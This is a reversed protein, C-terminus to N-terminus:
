KRKQTVSGRFNGRPVSYGVKPTTVPYIKVLSLYASHHTCSVWVDMFLFAQRKMRRRREQQSPSALSHVILLDCTSTLLGGVRSKDIYMQVLLSFYLHM